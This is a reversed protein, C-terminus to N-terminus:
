SPWASNKEDPVIEGYVEKNFTEAILGIERTLTPFEHGLRVGYESPTKSLFHPLDSHRGWNLLANYLQISNRYGRTWNVIKIWCLLLARFLQAAYVLM